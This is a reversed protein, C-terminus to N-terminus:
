DAVLGPVAHRIQLHIVMSSRNTHGLPRHQTENRQAVAVLFDCTAKRAPM